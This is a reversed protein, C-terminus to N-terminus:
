GPAPPNECLSVSGARQSGRYDYRTGGAEVVLHYGPTIVDTYMFGMKPCGAAGNPWTVAEASVVKVAGPDVGAQTAADHVAQQVVEPPVGETTGPVVTPAAPLPERTPAVSGGPAATSTGSGSPNSLPTAGGGTCAAATLALLASVALLGTGARRRTRTTM